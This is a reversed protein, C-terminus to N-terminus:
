KNTWELSRVLYLLLWLYSLSHTYRVYQQVFYTCCSSVLLKPERHPEVEFVLRLSPIRFLPLPHATYWAQRWYGLEPM